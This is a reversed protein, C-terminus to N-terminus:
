SRDGSAERWARMSVPSAAPWPAGPRAIGFGQALIPFATETLVTLDSPDEVGEAVLTAGIETTFDNIARLFARLTKRSGMGRILTADLKVFAPQLEIVHRMSAFGAGADDVGFRVGRRVYPAMARRLARYDRVAEDETLEIVLSSADTGAFAAVVEPHALYQPSINVSLFTGPPLGTGAAAGLIRRIAHAQLEAGLGVRTAEAFWADPPRRPVSAFRSFGEYGVVAGSALSLIPQFVPRLSAPDQLLAALLQVVHQRTRRPEASLVSSIAGELSADQRNLDLM